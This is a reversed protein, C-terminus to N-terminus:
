LLLSYLTFYVVFLYTMIDESLHRGFNTSSLQSQLPALLFVSWWYTSWCTKGQWLDRYDLVLPRLCKLEAEPIWINLAVKLPYPCNIPVGSHRRILIMNYSCKSQKLSRPLTDSCLGTAVCPSSPMHRSQLQSIGESWKLINVCRYLSPSHSFIWNLNCHKKGTNIFYM